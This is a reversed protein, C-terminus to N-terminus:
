SLPRGLVTPGKDVKTTSVMRKILSDSPEPHSVNHIVSYLFHPHEGIHYILQTM